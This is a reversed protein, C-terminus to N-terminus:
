GHCCDIDEENQKQLTQTQTYLICASLYQESLETNYEIHRDNMIRTQYAFIVRDFRQSYAGTSVGM